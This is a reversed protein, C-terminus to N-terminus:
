RPRELRKVRLPPEVASQDGNSNFAPLATPPAIGPQRTASVDRGAPLKPFFSTPQPQNVEPTAPPQAPGRLPSILADFNALVSDQATRYAGNGTPAGPTQLLGNLDTGSNAQKLIDDLDTM